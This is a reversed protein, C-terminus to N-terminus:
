KTSTIDLGVLRRNLHLHVIAAALIMLGIEPLVSGRATIDDEVEAQSASAFPGLLKKLLEFAEQLRIAIGSVVVNAARLDDMSHAPGMRSSLEDVRNLQVRLVQSCRADHLQRIIQKGDVGFRALLVHIVSRTM